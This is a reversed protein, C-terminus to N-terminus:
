AKGELFSFAGLLSIFFFVNWLPCFFLSIQLFVVSVTLLVSDYILLCIYFFQLVSSAVSLRTETKGGFILLMFGLFLGNAAMRVSVGSM